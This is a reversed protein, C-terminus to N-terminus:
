SQSELIYCHISYISKIFTFFIVISINVPSQGALGKPDLYKYSAVNIQISTIFGSLPWPGM